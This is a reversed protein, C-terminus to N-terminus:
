QIVLGLHGTPPVVMVPSKAHKIVYDAVSGRHTGKAIGTASLSSMVVLTGPQESAIESIAPGPDGSVERVNAVLGAADFRGAIENAQNRSQDTGRDEDVYIVVSEAELLRVLEVAYPAAVAGPESGDLPLVIRKISAPTAVSLARDGDGGKVLLVPVGSLALVQDAVSGLLLKRLGSRGHTAMVILDADIANAHKVIQQAPVGALVTQTVGPFRSELDAHAKKLSHRTLTDMQADVPVEYTLVVTVLNIRVGGPMAIAAAVPIAVEALESGDLPVVITAFVPSQESM